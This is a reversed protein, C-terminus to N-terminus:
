LIVTRNGQIFVRDQIVLELAQALTNKEVTKGAKVMDRASYTHDVPIVNQAIIPGEDLDATVFHATAGIIKVGREFAQHYPRAGIFAPLFSHHINIIRESYHSVFDDTLILMYKALIMYDFQYRKLCELVQREHDERGQDQHPIYHFPLSFKEVLGQLSLHNSIVAEIEIDLDLYASRTILEALCHYQKTALIVVKKTRKPSVEVRTSKPLIEELDEKLGKIVGSEDVSKGAVEVETRMYFLQQKTDVFETNSVINLEHDLIKKTIKHILGMQDQCTTRIIFRM